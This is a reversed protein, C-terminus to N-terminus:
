YHSTSDTTMYHNSNYKNYLREADRKGIYGGVARGIFMCLLIVVIILITFQFRTLGLRESKYWVPKKPDEMAWGRKREEMIKM